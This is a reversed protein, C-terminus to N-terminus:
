EEKLFMEIYKLPEKTLVMQQLHYEFAPFRCSDRGCAIDTDIPFVMTACIMEEGWFAKAFEHSFILEISNFGVEPRERRDAEEFVWRHFNKYQPEITFTKPKWRGKWKWGNGVAKDIAGKLIQSSEGETMYDSERPRGKGKYRDTKVKDTLTKITM